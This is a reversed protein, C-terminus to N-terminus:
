PSQFAHVQVSGVGFKKVSKYSKYTINQQVGLFLFSEGSCHPCIPIRLYICYVFLIFM